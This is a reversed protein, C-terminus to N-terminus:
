HIYPCQKEKITRPDVITCNYCLKLIKQSLLCEKTDDFRKAGDILLRRIAREDLQTKGLKRILVDTEDDFKFPHTYKIDNDVKINLHIKGLLLSELDVNLVKEYIEELIRIAEEM